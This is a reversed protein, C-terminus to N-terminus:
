VQVVVKVVDEATATGNLEVDVNTPIQNIQSASLLALQAAIHTMWFFAGEGTKDLIRKAEALQSENFSEVLNRDDAIVRLLYARIEEASRKTRDASEVLERYEDDLNMPRIRRKKRTAVYGIVAGLFLWEVM